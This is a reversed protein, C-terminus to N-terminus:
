RPRRTPTVNLASSNAAACACKGENTGNNTKPLQKAIAYSHLPEMRTAIVICESKLERVRVARANGSIKECHFEAIQAFVPQEVLQQWPEQGSFCDHHAQPVVARYNLSRLIAALKEHELSIADDFAHM